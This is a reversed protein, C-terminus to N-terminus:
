RQFVVSDEEGFLCLRVHLVICCRPRGRLAALAMQHVVLAPLKAEGSDEEWLREQSVSFHAALSSRNYIARDLAQQALAVRLVRAIDHFLM